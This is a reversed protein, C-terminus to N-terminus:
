WVRVATISHDQSRSAAASCRASAQSETKWSPNLERAPRPGARRAVRHIEDLRQDVLRQERHHLAVSSRAVPHELRHALERGQPQGLGPSVSSASAAWVAHATPMASPGPRASNPVSWIAATSSILMSSFLRASTSRRQVPRRRSRRGGYLQQGRQSDEPGDGAVVGPTRAPRPPRASAPATPAGARAPAPSAFPAPCGASGGPCGAPGSRRSAPRARHGPQTGSSGHARAVYAINTSAASSLRASRRKSCIASSASGAIATIPRCHAATSASFSPSM